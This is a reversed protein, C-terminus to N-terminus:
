EYDERKAKEEELIERNREIYEKTLEGVKQTQESANRYLFTTLQKVMVVEGECKECFPAPASM